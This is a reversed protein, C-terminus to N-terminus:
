LLINVGANRPSILFNIVFRDGTDNKYIAANSMKGENLENEFHLNNINNLRFRSIIEKM